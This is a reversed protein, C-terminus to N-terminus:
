TNPRQSLDQRVRERELAHDRLSLEFFRLRRSMLRMHRITIPGAAPRSDLGKLPDNAVKLNAFAPIFDAINQDLRLKGEEVLLMAAIATVPKTMSYARWLTDPGVKVKSDRAITGAFMFDAPSTGRGISAAVGPLRTPAFRDLVARITPWTAAPARAFATGPLAEAVGFAGILRLFERRELAHKITTSPGRGRIHERPRKSRNLPASLLMPADRTVVDRLM